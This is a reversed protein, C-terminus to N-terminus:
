TSTEADLQNSTWLLGVSHRLKITFGRRHPLVPGSRVTDGYFIMM